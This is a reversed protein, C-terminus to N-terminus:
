SKLWKLVALVAMAFSFCLLMGSPMFKKTVLFRQIFMITLLSSTIAILLMGSKYNTRSLYLGALVVIGSLLGAILSIKSQAKLYGMIGGIMLLGAYTILIVQMKDM